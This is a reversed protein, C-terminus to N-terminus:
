ASDPTLGLRWFLIIVAATLLLVVGVMEPSLCMAMPVEGPPPHPPAPDCHVM